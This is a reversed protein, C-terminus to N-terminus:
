AKGEKFEGCGYTKERRLEQPYRQCAIKMSDLEIDGSSQLKFAPAAFVCRECAASELKFVLAPSSRPKQKRRM